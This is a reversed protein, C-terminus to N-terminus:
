SFKSSRVKQDQVRNFLFTLRSTVYQLGVLVSDFKQILGTTIRQATHFVPITGLDMQRGQMAEANAVAVACYMVLTVPSEVHLVTITIETVNAHITWCLLQLICTHLQLSLDTPILVLAYTCTCLKGQEFQARPDSECAMLVFLPFAMGM